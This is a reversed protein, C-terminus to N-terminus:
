RAATRWWETDSPCRATSVWTRRTSAQSLYPKTTTTARTISSSQPTRATSLSASDPSHPWISCSSSRPSTAEMTLSPFIVPLSGMSYLVSRGCDWFFYSAINIWLNRCLSMASSILAYKILQDWIKRTIKESEPGFYEFIDNINNGYGNGWQKSCISRCVVFPRPHWNERLEM